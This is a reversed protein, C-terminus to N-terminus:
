SSAGVQCCPAAARACARARRSGKSTYTLEAHHGGHRASSALTSEVGANARAARPSVNTFSDPSASPVCASTSSSPARVYGVSSTSAPSPSSSKRECWATLRASSRGTSRAAPARSRPSRAARARRSAPACVSSSQRRKAASSQPAGESPSPATAVSSRASSRHVSTAARARSAPARRPSAARARVRPPVPPPGPPAFPPAFPSAFPSAFSASRATRALAGASSSAM